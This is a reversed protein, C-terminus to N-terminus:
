RFISPGECFFLSLTSRNRKISPISIMPPTTQRLISVVPIFLCHLSNAIVPDFDPCQPLWVIHYSTCPALSPRLHSISARTDSQIPSHVLGANASKAYHIKGLVNTKDQVHPGHTAHEYALGITMPMKLHHREKWFFIVRPLAHRIQSPQIRNSLDRKNWGQLSSYARVHQHQVGLANPVCSGFTSHM